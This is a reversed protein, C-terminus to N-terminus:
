AFKATLPSGNQFLNGIFNVNGTVQLKYGGASTSGIAVNPTFSCTTKDLSVFNDYTVVDQINRLILSGSTTFLSYSTSLSVGPLGNTGCLRLHALNGYSSFEGGATGNTHTLNVGIGNIGNDIISVANTGDGHKLYFNGDITAGSATLLGTIASVSFTRTGANYGAIGNFGNVNGMLVGTIGGVTTGTFIKPTVVYDSGILTKTGNWASVWDLLNADVGPIGQAGTAGQIGQVGTSGTAGQPGVLNTQTTSDLNNWTISGTGFVLNTGDFKLKYDIDSTGFRMTGNSLDLVTKTGNFDQLKGAKVTGMLVNTGVELESTIIKSASLTGNIIAGGNITNANAVANLGNTILDVINISDVTIKTLATFTDATINGSIEADVVHLKGTTNDLWMKDIWSPLVFTGDNYQMKLGVDANLIVQNKLEFLSDNRKQIILGSSGLSVGNGGTNSTITLASGKINVGLEDVTFTHEESGTSADITLNNGALIIGTLREAVILHKYNDLYIRKIDKEEISNEYFLSINNKNLKYVNLQGGIGEFSINNFTNQYVEMLDVHQSLEQYAFDFCETTRIGGTWLGIDNGKITKEIIEFDNYSSIQYVITKNNKITGVVIELFSKKDHYLIALEQLLEISKNKFKICQNMIKYSIDMNGSCFILKDEIIWIKKGEENIRYINDGITTSVASDSGFWLESEKQIIM